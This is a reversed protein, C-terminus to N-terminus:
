VKRVQTVPEKNEEEFFTNLDYTQIMKCFKLM